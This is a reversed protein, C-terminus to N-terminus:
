GKKEKKKTVFKEELAKFRKRRLRGYGLPYLVYITLIGMIGVIIQFRVQGTEGFYYFASFALAITGILWAMMNQLDVETKVLEIQFRRDEETKSVM